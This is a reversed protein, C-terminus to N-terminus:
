LRKFGQWMCLSRIVRVGGKKGKTETRTEEEISTRAAAASDLGHGCGYSSRRHHDLCLELRHRSRSAVMYPHFFSGKIENPSTLTM